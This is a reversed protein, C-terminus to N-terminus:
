DWNECSLKCYELDQKFEKNFDLWFYEIADAKHSFFFLLFYWLPADLWNPMIQIQLGM